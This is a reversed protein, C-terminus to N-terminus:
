LYSEINKALEDATRKLCADNRPHLLNGKEDMLVTESAKTRDMFYRFMMQAISQEKAFVYVRASSLTENRTVEQVVTLVPHPGINEFRVYLGNRKDEFLGVHGLMMILPEEHTIVTYEHKWSM